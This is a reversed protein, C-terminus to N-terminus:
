FDDSQPIVQGDDRSILLKLVNFQITKKVRHVSGDCFAVNVSDTMTRLGSLGGAYDCSVDPREDNINRTGTFTGQLFRGDMWSACRDGSINKNDKWDQVGSEDKLEKLSDKDKFLVYQRAVNVAKTGGDGKLTEGIMFTNSTGDTINAFTIKSNQFFVGNNDELSPKTGASFLYNTAGRDKRVDQPPDQPNLCIKMTLGAAAANAPDTMPKNFDIQKYVNDQEVFPLLHAFASFGNGDVGPPFSAFTDHYNHCALAYQKLNNASQARGAAQRVKQVAPLLLAFLLGLIALVVLLEFLTFAPRKNV